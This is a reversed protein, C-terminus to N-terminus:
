AGKKIYEQHKGEKWLKYWQLSCPEGQFYYPNYKDKAMFGGEQEHCTCAPLKKAAWYENLTEWYETVTKSLGDNWLLQTEEMRLDDKSINLIRAEKLGDLSKVLKRFSDTIDKSYLGDNDQELVKITKDGDVLQRIISMYTGLQYKHYHSMDSGKKYTFSRSNVTKFDYLILGVSAKIIDDFHGQIMLTNDQLRLEQAISLGAEKTVRQMWEHFIHGVEFVRTKRADNSTPTVGLRDFIVKRMCYGASSASWYAGYDRVEKAKEILYDDVAVRVGTQYLSQSLDSV